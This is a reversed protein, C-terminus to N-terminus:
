WIPCRTPEFNEACSLTKKAPSATWVCLNTYGYWLNKAFCSVLGYVAGFGTLAHVDAHLVTLLM